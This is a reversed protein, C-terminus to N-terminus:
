LEARVLIFKNCLTTDTILDYKKAAVETKLGGVRGHETVFYMVKSGEDRKKKMWTTFTAGTSVFAPIHNGTRTTRRSSRTSAGTSRRRRWTSTSAGCGGACGSRACRWWRTGACRGCRSAWRYCCRWGASAPSLRRSTSRSRGRGGTTTRSSSSCASRGRSTRAGAAAGAALMRSAHAKNGDESAADESAPAATKERDRFLWVFGAMMAVGCLFLVGGMPLSGNGLHGDPKTGLFSGPLMRTIGLTMLAAGGFLGLAYAGFAGGEALPKKGLMDDLVVGVLMAVPPVAPVIYHHFKTGMFSFLAFSFLFWLFLFVAVDGKGRDASDGRRLWYMLGLPALGTWPFLAYGLQWLYFRLSTDDGENTDHVHETARDWMDHFILRDTFPAGHRVYMAVFWPLALACWMVIGTIAELALLESWRRKTCVWAFACM